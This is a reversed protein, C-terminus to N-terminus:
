QGSEAAFARYLDDFLGGSLVRLCRNGRRGPRQRAFLLM